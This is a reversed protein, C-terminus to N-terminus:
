SRPAARVESIFAKPDLFREGKPNQYASEVLLARMQEATLDPRLQWGMALVGTAYPIAWSLGGRGDYQYSFEGKEWEQATTRPSAPVLLFSPPVRGVLGPFGANCKAVNEPDAPDYYSPGIFGNHRTCDLVLVGADNARQCAADWQAGNKSFPSGIGSPAASVSVARIKADASLTANRELIWDLAKAYYSADGTWSPAAVYYVTADPATGCQSGVLLSAVAPGHMSNDSNCGVDHYAAFKGEYEPHSGLLPQDIIAVSVGKGTIGQQHLRRVGQGPNMADSMIKKADINPPFRHAEPWQTTENFSLTAVLSHRNSLDLSSLDKWRMDGYEAVRDVPTLARFSQVRDESQRSAPKAPIGLNAGKKLVYYNPKMGRDTVDGSLWPLFLYHESDFEKIFYKAKTSGNSHAITDREWTWNRSAEGSKNFRFEKLVLKISTNRIGPKFDEVQRVFDVSHWLGIPNLPRSEAQGDAHSAYTVILVTLALSYRM